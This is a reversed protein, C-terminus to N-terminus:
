KINSVSFGIENITEKILELDVEKDYEIIANNNNLSVKVKKVNSINKLCNEVRSRCKDCHM